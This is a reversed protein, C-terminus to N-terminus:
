LSHVADENRMREKRQREAQRHCEKCRRSGQYTYTNEASYAHGQPCQTKTRAWGKSPVSLRGKASADRMNDLATGLFLHDPRTCEPNDCQHLVQLGDPIQGRHVRWSVRHAGTRAEGRGLQVLGYGFGDKRGTWSWCGDDRRIVRALYFEEETKRPISM